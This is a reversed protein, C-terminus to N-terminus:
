KPFHRMLRLLYVMKPDPKRRLLLLLFAVLIAILLGAATGVEPSLLLGGSM